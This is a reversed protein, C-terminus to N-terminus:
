CEGYFDVKSIEPLTLLENRVDQAILKRSFEDIEGHIAVFVVPVDPEIKYIVPKETLAPFTAIADVRTKVETLVENIDKDRSVEITVSGSGEGASSRIEVIGLIDQVAEEIKIVVGEEVEQPAAGLYPVYVQIWNLEIEPTTQKSCIQLSTTARL